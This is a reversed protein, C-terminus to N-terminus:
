PRSLFVEDIEGVSARSYGDEDAPAFERLWAALEQSLKEFPTEKVRPYVREDLVCPIHGEEIWRTM